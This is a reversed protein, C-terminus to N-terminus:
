PVAGKFRDRHQKNLSTAIALSALDARLSPSRDSLPMILGYPTLTYAPTDVGTPSIGGIYLGWLPSLDYAPGSRENSEAIDDRNPMAWALKVRSESSRENGEAIDDRSPM